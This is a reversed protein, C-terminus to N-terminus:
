AFVPHTLDAEVVEAVGAGGQEEGGIVIHLHNM